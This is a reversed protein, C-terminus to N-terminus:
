DQALFKQDRPIGSLVVCGIKGPTAYTSEVDRAIQELDTEADSGISYLGLNPDFFYGGDGQLIFAIAHESGNWRMEFYLAFSVEGLQDAVLGIQGFAGAFDDSYGVLDAKLNDRRGLMKVWEVGSLKVDWQGARQMSTFLGMKDDLIEPTTELDALFRKVVYYTMVMCVGSRVGPDPIYAAPNQAYSWLKAMKSFEM